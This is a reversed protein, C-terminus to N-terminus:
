AICFKRALEETQNPTRKLRLGVIYVRDGPDQIRFDTFDGDVVPYTVGNHEITDPLAAKRKV